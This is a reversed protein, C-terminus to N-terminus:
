VMLWKKGGREMARKRIWDADDGIDLILLPEETIDTLPSVEEPWVEIVKGGFSVGLVPLNPYTQGCGCSYELYVVVGMEGLDVRDCEDDVMGTFVVRDGPQYPAGPVHVMVPKAKNM